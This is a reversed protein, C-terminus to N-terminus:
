GGLVSNTMPAGFFTPLRLRGPAPSCSRRLQSRVAAGSADSAKDAHTRPAPPECAGESWRYRLTSMTDTWRRSDIGCRGGVQGRARALQGGSGAGRQEPVFFAATLGSRGGR